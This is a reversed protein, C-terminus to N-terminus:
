FSTLILTKTAKKPNRLSRAGGGLLDDVDDARLPVIFFALFATFVICFLCLREFPKM